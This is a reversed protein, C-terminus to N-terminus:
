VKVDYGAVNSSAGAQTWGNGSIHFKIQSISVPNAFIHTATHEFWDSPYCCGNLYTQWNTDWNGDYDSGDGSRYPGSYSHSTGAENVWNIDASVFKPLFFSCNYLLIITLFIRKM